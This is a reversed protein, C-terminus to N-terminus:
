LALGAGFFRSGPCLLRASLFSSVSHGCYHVDACQRPIVIRMFILFLPPLYSRHEMLMSHAGGGHFSSIGVLQWPATTGEKGRKGPHNEM